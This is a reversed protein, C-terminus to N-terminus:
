SEKLTQDIGGTEVKLSGTILQSLASFDAISLMAVNEPTIPAIVASDPTETLNWETIAHALIVAAQDVSNTIGDIGVLSAATISTDINAWGRDAENPLDKTSPFYVKELKPVNLSPM